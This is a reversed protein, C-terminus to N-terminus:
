DLEGLVTKLANLADITTFIGVVGAGNVVVASGYKHDAMARAVDVLPTTPAVTYVEEAMVDAVSASALDVVPFARLLDLERRSLLGVLKGGDLVPLHRIDHEKLLAHADQLSTELDVTTVVATMFYQVSHRVAM